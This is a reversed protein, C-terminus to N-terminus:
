NHNTRTTNKGSPIKSVLERPIQIKPTETKTIQTTESSSNVDEGPPAEEATDGPQNKPGPM